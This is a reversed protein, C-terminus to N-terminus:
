PGLGPRAPPARWDGRPVVAGYVEALRDIWAGAGHAARARARSAAACSRRREPDALMGSIAAALRDPAAAPALAAGTGALIRANDGVDTMVSPLGNAMAELLSVPAGEWHSSSVFLDAAALLRPVDGRVGLFRLRGGLGLGAARAELPKRLEGGGAIALRTRPFTPALLAFADILDAFAKQPYLGGVALLLLDGGAVGLEARTADRDGGTWVATAAVANPVVEFPRGAADGANAEAVAAGVAIRRTAPRRLATRYLLGRARGVRRASPRVNHVTCVFPLGMLAAAHGGVVISGTLHAHVLEVRERRLAATLRLFRRPDILSAGAFDRVPTGMAELEARFPTREDSLVFVTLDFRPDDRVAEAFGLVLREAGGTALTDIMQVLRLPQPTM